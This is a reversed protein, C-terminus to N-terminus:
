LGLSVNRLLPPPPSRHHSVGRKRVGIKRWVEECSEIAEYEVFAYNLSDGTVHDRCIEARCTGFRVVMAVVVAM